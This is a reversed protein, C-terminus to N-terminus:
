LVMKMQLYDRCDKESLKYGCKKVITHVTKVLGTSVVYGQSPFNMRERTIEKELNAYLDGWIGELLLLKEQPVSSEMRTMYERLIHNLFKSSNKQMDLFEAVDADLSYARKVKLIKGEMM